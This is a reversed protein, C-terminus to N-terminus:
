GITPAAPPRQAARHSFATSLLRQRQQNNLSSDAALTPVALTKGCRKVASIKTRLLTQERSFVFAM